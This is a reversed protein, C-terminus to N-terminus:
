QTTITILLQLLFNGLLQAVTAFPLTLAGTPNSAILYQLLSAGDIQLVRIGPPMVELIPLGNVTVLALVATLLADVTPNGLSTLAAVLTAVNVEANPPAVFIIFKVLYYVVNTLTGQVIYNLESFVHERVENSVPIQPAAVPQQAVPYQASYQASVFPSIVSIAVILAFIFKM